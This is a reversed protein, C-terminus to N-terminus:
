GPFPFEAPFPLGPVLDGWRAWPVKQRNASIAEAFSKFFCDWLSVLEEPAMDEPSEGFYTATGAWTERFSDHRHQLAEFRLSAELLWPKMSTLFSTLYPSGASHRGSSSSLAPTSTGSPSHFGSSQPTDEFSALASSALTKGSPGHGLEFLYRKREELTTSILKSEVNRGDQLLPIVREPLDLLAPHPGELISALYHLLTMKGDASKFEKLKTLSEMRFGIAKGGVPHRYASAATRGYEYTALNGLDLITMLLVKIGDDERLAQLASELSDIQRALHALEADLQAEMILAEVMWGLNPELSMQAMYNEVRAVSTALSNSSSVSDSDSDSKRSASRRSALLEAQLSFLLREEPTPLLGKLAALDDLTLQGTRNVIASFLEEDTFRKQFRSCGIAINNARRLDLLSSLRRFCTGFSLM